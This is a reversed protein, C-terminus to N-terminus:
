ELPREIDPERLMVLKPPASLANDIKWIYVTYAGFPRVETANNQLVAADTTIRFEGSINVNAQAMAQSETPRLANGAIIIQNDPRSKMMLIRSDRRLIATLQNRGLRGEREYHVHFRGRGLPLLTKIAPDRELDTKIHELREIEQDPALSNEAYEHLIPGYLLDGDYTLAWDGYRSLRLESKFKDPIYCSSLAFMAVLMVVIRKFTRNM